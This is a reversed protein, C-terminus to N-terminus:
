NLTVRFYSTPVYGKGGGKGRVRTWGDGKDEEMLSLDEGEAMSITGESSGEFHYIAVYHGIPSTAEEKFDEDFETYIPTDQSEESPPEESSEKTDQSGATAAATTQHPALPPTLLGPM